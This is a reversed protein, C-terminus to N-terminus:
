TLYPVKHFADDAADLREKERTDQNENTTKTNTTKTKSAQKSTQDPAHRQDKVSRPYPFHIYMALELSHLTQFPHIPASPTKNTHPPLLPIAVTPSPTLSKPYRMNATSM